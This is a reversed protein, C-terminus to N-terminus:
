FTKGDVLLEMEVRIEGADNSIYCEYLAEHKIEVNKIELSFKDGDRATKVNGCEILPKGEKVWRASASNAHAVRFQFRATESENIQLDEPKEILEPPKENSVPSDRPTSPIVVIDIGLVLLLFIM